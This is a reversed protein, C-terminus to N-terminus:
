GRNGKKRKATFGVKSSNITQPQSTWQTVTCRVV